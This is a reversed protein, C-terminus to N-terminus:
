TTFYRKLKEKPNYIIEPVLSESSTKRLVADKLNVYNKLILKDPFDPHVNVAAKLPDYYYGLVGLDRAMLTPSTIMTSIVIDSAMIPIYPDINSDCITIRDPITRIIKELNQVEYYYFSSSRKPKIIFHIDPFDKALMLVAEYFAEIMDLSVYHGVGLNIRHKTIMPSIDFFSIIFPNKKKTFFEKLNEKKETIFKFNGNLLPGTIQFEVNTNDISSEFIPDINRNSLLKKVEENWVWVEKALPLSFRINVDKFQNINKAYYFEGSSYLWIINKIKLHNLIAADTREPWGTSLSTLAMEIPNEELFSKWVHISCLHPLIFFNLHPPKLIACSLHLFSKILITIRKLKKIRSILHYEECYRTGEKLFKNEITLNPVVFLLEEPKCIDNLVPWSFNLSNTGSPLESPSIGTMIYRTAPATHFSKFSKKLYQLWEIIGANWIAFLESIYFFRGWIKNRQFLALNPFLQEILIQPLSQLIFYDDKNEKKILAEFQVYQEYQIFFKQLSYKEFNIGLYKLPLINKGHFKKKLKNFCDELVILWHDLGDYDNIQSYESLIKELNMDTRYFVINFKNKLLKLFYYNFIHIKFVFLTPKNNM